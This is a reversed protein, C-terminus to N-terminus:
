RTVRMQYELQELASIGQKAMNSKAQPTLANYFQALKPNKALDDYFTTGGNYQNAQTVLTEMAGLQQSELGSTPRDKYKQPKPTEPVYLGKQQNIGLLNELWNTDAVTNVKNVKKIPIDSSQYKTYDKNTDQKKYSLLDILNRIDAM